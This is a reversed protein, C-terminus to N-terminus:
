LEIQRAKNQVLAWFQEKMELPLFSKAIFPQWLPIVSAFKNFINEM